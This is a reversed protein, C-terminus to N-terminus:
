VLGWWMTAEVLRPDTPLVLTDVDAAGDASLERDVVIGVADAPDLGRVEVLVFDVGTPAVLDAVIEGARVGVEASADPAVM